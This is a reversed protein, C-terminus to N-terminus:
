RSGCSLSANYAFLVRLLVRLAGVNELMLDVTLAMTLVILAVQEMNLRSLKRLLRVAEEVDVPLEKPSGVVAHLPAARESNYSSSM